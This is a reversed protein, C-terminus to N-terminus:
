FREDFADIKEVFLSMALGDAAGGPSLNRAVFDAHMAAARIKWGPVNVGGDSLFARASEQAHRLGAVGGRHLLNTDDVAAILAMCCQVRAAETHTPNARRSSRLAALGIKYVVPFGNAAELRAGGVGYQTCVRGGNSTAVVPTARIADGWVARVVEGCSMTADYRARWGAAACLLGLGWIAGRHTNVGNTAELMAREAALGIRRLESLAANRHGAGYLSEFFPEISSASKIFTSVSMDRHSGNDVHSVLGPKPWTMVEDMLCDHASQAVIKAESLEPQVLPPAGLFNM